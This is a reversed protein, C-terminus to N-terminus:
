GPQQLDRFYILKDDGPAYFDHLTAALTCGRKEYFSRTSAYLPRGATEIWLTRAGRAAAARCSAEFLRTGIHRNRLREDLAIWYLDWSYLASPNPGFVSFGLLDGNERAMLWHYGSGDQGKEHTEDFLSLAVEVEYEYFFGSSELIAQLVPRDEPRLVNDLAVM